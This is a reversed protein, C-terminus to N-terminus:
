AGPGQGLRKVVDRVVMNGSADLANERFVVSDPTIKSVVGNYVADNERLFYARNSSNDVVAIMTSTTDLRVIGEVKLQSILLGRAGPPLPGLIQEGAAGGPVPPGPLKFPDRRGAMEPGKPAGESKAASEGAPKKSAAKKASVKKGSPKAATAKPKPVSAAAKPKMPVAAAKPKPTAVKKTDAAVGAKTGAQPAGAAQLLGAEIARLATASFSLLVVPLAWALWKRVGKLRDNVM